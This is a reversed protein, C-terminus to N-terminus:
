DKRRTGSLLAMYAEDLRELMEESMGGGNEMMQNYFEEIYRCLSVRRNAINDEILIKLDKVRDRFQPDTMEADKVNHYYQNLSNLWFKDHQGGNDFVCGPQEQLFCYGHVLYTCQLMGQLVFRRFCDMSTESLHCPLQCERCLMEADGGYTFPHSPIKIDPRGM